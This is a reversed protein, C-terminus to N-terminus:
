CDTNCFGSCYYVSKGKSKRNYKHKSGFFTRSGSCNGTSKGYKYLKFIGTKFGSLSIGKLIFPINMIRNYNIINYRDKITNDVTIARLMEAQIIEAINELQKKYLIKYGPSIFTIAYKVTMNNCFLMVFNAIKSENIGEM